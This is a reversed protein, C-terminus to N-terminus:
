DKKSTILALEKAIRGGTVANNKILAINSKSSEGVTIESIRKLLFPTSEAGLIKQDGAEELAQNIAVKIKQGDAEHEVPVPVTILIGTKLNLKNFQM